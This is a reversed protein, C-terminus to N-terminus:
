VKFAHVCTHIYEDRICTHTHTYIHKNMRTHTPLPPTFMLDIVYRCCFTVKHSIEFRLIEQWLKQLGSVIHTHLYAGWIMHLTHVCIILNSMKRSFQVPYPQQHYGSVKSTRHSRARCPRHGNRWCCRRAVNIFGSFKLCCCVLM